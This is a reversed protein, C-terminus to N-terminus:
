MRINLGLNTTATVPNLYSIPPPVLTREIKLSYKSEPNYLISIVPAYYKNTLAFHDMQEFGTGSDWNIDAVPIGNDYVRTHSTIYLVPKGKIKFPLPIYPSELSQINLSITHRALNSDISKIIATQNLTDITILFLSDTTRDTWTLVEQQNKVTPVQRYENPTM